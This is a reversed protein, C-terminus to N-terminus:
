PNMTILVGLSFTDKTSPLVDSIRIERAIDNKTPAIENTGNTM